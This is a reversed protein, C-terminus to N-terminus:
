RISGRLLHLSFGTKQHASDDLKEEKRRWKEEVPEMSNEGPHPFSPVIGQKIKSPPSYSASGGCEEQWHNILDQKQNFKKNCECCKYTTKKTRRKGNRHLAYVHDKAASKEIFTEDCIKCRFRQQPEDPPPDTEGNMGTTTEDQNEMRSDDKTRREEEHSTPKNQGNANFDDSPGASQHPTTNSNDPTNDEDEEDIEIQIEGNPVLTDDGLHEMPISLTERRSPAAEAEHRVVDNQNNQNEDQASKNQSRPVEQSNASCDRSWHDILDQKHHFAEYCQYCTFTKAEGSKQHMHAKPDTKSAFKVEKSEKKTDFSGPSRTPIIVNPAETNEEEEDETVEILIEAGPVSVHGNLQLVNPKIDCGTALHKVLEHEHQFVEHCQYCSYTRHERHVKRKHRRFDSKHIFSKSCLTCHFNPREQGMSNYRTTGNNPLTNQQQQHQQRQQQIANRSHQGVADRRSVDNSHVVIEVDQFQTLMESIMEIDQPVVKDPIDYVYRHNKCTAHHNNM